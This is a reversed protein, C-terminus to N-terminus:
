ARHTMQSPNKNQRMMTAPQATPGSKLAGSIGTGAPHAPGGGKGATV